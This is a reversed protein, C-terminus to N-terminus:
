QSSVEIRKCLGDLKRRLVFRALINLWSVPDADSLEVLLHGSVGSNLVAFCGGGGHVLCRCTREEDGVSGYLNAQMGPFYRGGSPCCMGRLGLLLCLVGVVMWLTPSCRLGQLGLCHDLVGVTTLSVAKNCYISYCNYCGGIFVVVVCGWFVRCM